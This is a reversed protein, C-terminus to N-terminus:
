TLSNQKLEPLFFYIDSFQQLIPGKFWQQTERNQKRSLEYINGM